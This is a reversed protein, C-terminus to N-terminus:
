LKKPKFSPHAALRKKIETISLLGATPGVFQVVSASNVAGWKIAEPLALGKMIGALTGCAFSDGAGTAEVREGPFMPLFLMTEGDFGYAGNRGDTIVIQKKNFRWAAAVIDQPSATPELNTLARAEGLNLFLLTTKKMLDYLIKNKEEIQFAGPNMAIHTHDAAVKKILEAYLKKYGSGLECVYVWKTKGLKPLRYEYPEHAALITKEGKYNLVVAFSSKKNALPKIYQANVKEKKMKELAMQYISDKGMMSFVASHFKMRALGAAVNPASGAIQVDIDKVPIKKGYEVCLFCGPKGLQCEVSADDLVTFTDLKIDGITICDYM